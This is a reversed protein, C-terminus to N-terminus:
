NEHSFSRVTPVSISIHGAPSPVKPVKTSERRQCGRFLVLLVLLFLLIFTGLTGEKNMYM